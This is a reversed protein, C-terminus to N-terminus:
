QAARYSDRLLEMPHTVPLGNGQRVQMACTGCPTVVVDPRAQAIESFLPEGMKMSLEFNERKMGFTGAIGCCSDEIDTISLEPIMRLLTLPTDGIGQARLHCPAHYVIHRPVPGLNVDLEGKEHLGLLFEHVDSTSEAVAETDEGPVLHLYSHKVMLGCTAASAIVTYGDDVYEKLAAVNWKADKVVADGSGISVLAAGCCRLRPVHVQYGNRELVEITAQGEAVPDNYMAYCGAYYVIRKGEQPRQRGGPRSDTSTHMGRHFPPLDRRRDVGTIAEMAVRLPKLQLAVNSIPAFARGMRGLNDAQALSEARPDQGRVSVYQAKAQECIAAIDV